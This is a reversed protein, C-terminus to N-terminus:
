YVKDLSITIPNSSGIRIGFVIKNKNKELVMWFDRLYGLGSNPKFFLSKGDIGYTFYGSELYNGDPDNYSQIEISGASETNFILSVKDANGSDDFVMSGVWSTQKLFATNLNLDENDKSCGIFIIGSLLILIWLKKM